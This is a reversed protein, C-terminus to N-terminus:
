TGPRRVLRHVLHYWAFVPHRYVMRPGAYRMVTRMARRQEDAYCHVVCQRCTPKDSAFPCRGLRELGYALLEACSPCPVSQQRHRGECYLRVMATLVQAERELRDM